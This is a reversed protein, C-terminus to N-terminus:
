KVSKKLWKEIVNLADPSFTEEITAYESPSGTTCTQFLHNLNSLIEVTVHKNGNSEVANKIAPINQEAPVQIDKSGNIALVPCTVKKLAIQPDLRLFYRMWPNLLQARLSQQFESSTQGMEALLDANIPHQEFYADVATNLAKEDTNLNVLEFLDRNLQQNEKLLTPNMGEAKAILAQQLLLLSDGKIGTGALLVIFAISNTPNAAVMPAIVGGESHGMLGIKTPNVVFHHQLFKVASEVDSAFDATTAQSFDGTSKGVGRDDFRLVAYGKRTFYDALVLFPKHGLLEENRSQPGSGSILILAPFQQTSNPKLKPYTLTGALKVNASKNFFFVEEESYPVPLKPDRPKKDIIKEIVNRTMELPFSKGAQTFEGKLVDNELRATYVIKAADLSLVLQQNAYTVSTMPIGFASQDPSDMTASFSSDKKVINFDLRLNMGQVLLVGHWVGEINQSFAVTSLFCILVLFHKM